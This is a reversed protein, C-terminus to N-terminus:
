FRHLIFRKINVARIKGIVEAINKERLIVDLGQTRKLLARVFNTKAVCLVAYDYYSNRTVFCRELCSLVAECHTSFSPTLSYQLTKM